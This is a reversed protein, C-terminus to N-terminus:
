RPKATARFGSLKPPYATAASADQALAGRPLLATAAVSATAMAIGNLFDRRSIPRDMGLQRDRDTLSM